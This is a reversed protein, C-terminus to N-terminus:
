MLPHVHSCLLRAVLPTCIEITYSQSTLAAAAQATIRSALFPIVQAVDAPLSLLLPYSFLTLLSANGFSHALEIQITYGFIADFSSFRSCGVHMM